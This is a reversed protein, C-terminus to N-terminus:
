GAAAGDWWRVDVSHKLGDLTSQLRYV